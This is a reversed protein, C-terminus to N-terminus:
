KRKPKEQPIPANKEFLIAKQKNLEKRIKEKEKQFNKYDKGYLRGSSPLKATMPNVPRGYKIVEFHLHPGTSRGTNGVYGIVQGKKVRSGRRLGKKYTNLHAYATQWVADHKIKIYKGYGGYRGIKVVTGSGAATIPTGRKAAFDVGTHMMRRKLIPHKRYGFGSSIRHKAVIPRRSISKKFANSSLDYYATNDTDGTKSFRFAETKYYGRQLGIYVTDGSNILKGAEDYIQEYLVELIDGKKIDTNPNIKNSIIKIVQNTVKRPLKLASGLNSINSKISGKKFLFKSQTKKTKKTVKYENLNNINMTITKIGRPIQFKVLKKDEGEVKETFILKQGVKLNTVKFNANRVLSIAVKRALSTGYGLDNFITSLTDNRKVTYVKTVQSIKEKKKQEQQKSIKAVDIIKQFLNKDDKNETTKINNNQIETNNTEQDDLKASLLTKAANNAVKEIIVPNQQEQKKKKGPKELLSKESSDELVKRFKQTVSLESSIEPKNYKEVKIKRFAPPVVRLTKANSPKGQIAIKAAEAAKQKSIAPVNDPKM